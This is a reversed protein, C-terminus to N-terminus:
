ILNTVIIKDEKLLPIGCPKLSHFGCVICWTVGLGNDRLKHKGKLCNDRQKWYIEKTLYM